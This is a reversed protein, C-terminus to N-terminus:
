HCVRVGSCRSCGPGNCDTAVRQWFSRKTLLLDGARGATNGSGFDAQVRLDAQRDGDLSLTSIRVPGGVPEKYIATTIPKRKWPVERPRGANVSLVRM